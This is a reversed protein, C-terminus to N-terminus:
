FFNDSIVHDIGISLSRALANPARRNAPTFLNGGPHSVKGAPTGGGRQNARKEAANDTLTKATGDETSQRTAASKPEDRFDRLESARIM